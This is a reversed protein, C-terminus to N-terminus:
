WREDGTGHFSAEETRPLNYRKGIELEVVNAHDGRNLAGGM